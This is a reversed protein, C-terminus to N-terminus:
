IKQKDLGTSQRKHQTVKIEHIKDRRQWHDGKDEASLMQLCNIGLDPRTMTGLDFGVYCRAQDPHLNNQCQNYEQFFKTFFTMKFSLTQLHVFLAFKELM